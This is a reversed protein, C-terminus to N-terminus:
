QRKEVPATNRKGSRVERGRLGSIRRLLDLVNGNEDAVGGKINTGGLDIGVFHRMM